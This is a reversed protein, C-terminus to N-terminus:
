RRRLVAFPHFRLLPLPFLPEILQFDPHHAVRDVDFSGAWGQGSSSCATALRPPGEMALASARYDNTQCRRLDNLRIAAAICGGPAGELHPSLTRLSHSTFGASTLICSKM